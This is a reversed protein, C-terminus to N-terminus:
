GQLITTKCGHGNEPSSRSRSKVPAWLREGEVSGRRTAYGSVRVARGPKVSGRKRLASLSGAAGRILRATRAPCPAASEPPTSLPGEPARGGLEHLYPSKLESFSINLNRTPVRPELTGCGSPFGPGGPEATSLATQRWGAQPRWSRPTPAGRLLGAKLEAEGTEM